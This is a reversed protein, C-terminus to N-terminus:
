WPSQWGEMKMGDPMEVGRESVTDGDMISVNSLQIAQLTGWCFRSRAEVLGQLDEHLLTANHYSVVRLRPVLLTTRMSGPQERALLKPSDDVIAGHQIAYVFQLVELNPLGLLLEETHTQAVLDGLVLKRLSLSIEFASEPDLPVPNWRSDNAHSSHLKLLRLMPAIKFVSQVWALVTEIPFDRLTLSELQGLAALRTPAAYDRIKVCRRVTIHRPNEYTAVLTELDSENLGAVFLEELFPYHVAGARYGVRNGHNWLHLRRVREHAQRRRLMDFIMRHLSLDAEFLTLTRTGCHELQLAIYQHTNDKSKPHARTSAPTHLTSWLASTAFATERWQRCVAVLTLLTNSYQKWPVEVDQRTSAVHPSRYLHHKPEQLAEEFIMSLLETPFRRIGRTMNTGSPASRDGPLTAPLKGFRSM